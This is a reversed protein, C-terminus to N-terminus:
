NTRTQEYIKKIKEIYSNMVINRDFEKEVKKRANLGMQIREENSLQLFIEIKKILDESDRQKVVYGNYGDEVVEKCGPRDTTIIPRGSACTELLANSLGEAYFSPHITCHIKKYIEEKMNMVNGHYKVINNKELEKILESYSDEMGGCVNFVTNPYKNKIYKAADVYQDFGKEKMVRGIYVFNIEDQNPYDIYKYDDTNVGSGPVLVCQKEKVLKKDLMFQKNDKNQLFVYKAKSIGIKYLTVAVKQILGEKELAAGLGTMTVIYPVKKLACALGGYVNPKITYTLAVDPKVEDIIRLYTKLLSFDKIPNTGKRNFNTTIHKCGLEKIKEVYRGPLSCVTVENEEALKKLFEKRFRYAGEDSNTIFLIKM